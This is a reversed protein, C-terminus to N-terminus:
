LYTGIRYLPWTPSRECFIPQGLFVTLISSLWNSRRSYLLLWAAFHCHANPLPSRSDPFVNRRGKRSLVALVNIYTRRSHISCPVITVLHSGTHTGAGPFARSHVGFWRGSSRNRKHAYHPVYTCSRSCTAAHSSM